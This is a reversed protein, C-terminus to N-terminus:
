SQNLWKSLRVLEDLNPPTGQAMRVRAGHRIDAQEAVQYWSLGREQRKLNIKTYFLELSLRDM